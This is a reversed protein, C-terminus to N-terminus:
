GLNRRSVAARPVIAPRAAGSLAGGPPRRGCFVLGPSGYSLADAVPWSGATGCGPWLLGLM